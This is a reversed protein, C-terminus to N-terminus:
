LLARRRRDAGAISGLIIANDDVLRQREATAAIQRRAAVSEEDAAVAVRPEEGKRPRDIAVVPVDMLLV